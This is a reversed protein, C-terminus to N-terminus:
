DYYQPMLRTRQIAVPDHFLIMQGCTEAVIAKLRRIAALASADDVCEGPGIEEAFNEELDGADFPLVVTGARPLEIIASQHGPTHGRTRLFRVGPLLDWDGHRLQWRIAPNDYDALFYSNPRASSFGHAHEDDQIYVPAHTLYKVYGAHDLHLHSLVVAAIDSFGLGLQALLGPLEHEPHVIPPYIGASHFYQQTLRPDRVYAPDFGADLLIWGESTDLLYCCIPECMVFQAGRDKTSINKPLVEYGVLAVYLRRVATVARRLLWLRGSRLVSERM